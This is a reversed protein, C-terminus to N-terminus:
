HLGLVASAKLTSLATSMSKPCYGECRADDVCNGDIDAHQGAGCDSVCAGVSKVALFNAASSFVCLHGILVVVYVNWFYMRNANQRKHKTILSLSNKNSKVTVLQLVTSCKVNCPRGKVVVSLAVVTSLM